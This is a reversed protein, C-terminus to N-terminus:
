KKFFSLTPKIMALLVIILYWYWDLSLIPSWLNAFLLAGAFAFIKICFVDWADLKKTGKIGWKFLNM